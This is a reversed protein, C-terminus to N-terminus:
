IKIKLIKRIILMGVLQMFGAAYLLNHGRPDRWLVSMYDPNMITVALAVFLPLGCLIWASMRSSTTLTNLDELIRFRERITHSVKELIEALNGGTERQIMIATVCFRLDLLPVREALNELALKLSLGLNQEEYTKRFETAIPEPMETSVMHLSEAFAHGAQLARSMLELADPLHELFANLRRKRKYAVHLFPIAAAAAGATVMLLKSIALVSVALAALLGAMVSLMVLRSVTIHLDAQDLMRRLSAALRVRMLVRSLAPIESMLEQRALQVEEDDSRKSYLLADSLRQQLRKRKAETGRTALLYAGFVGFMCTIFVLFPIM